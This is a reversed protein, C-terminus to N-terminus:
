TEVSQTQLIVIGTPTRGIILVDVTVSGVRFVQVQECHTTLFRILAKHQQAIAKGEDGYGQCRKEVQQILDEPTIEVVEATANRRLVNRLSSVDVTELTWSPLTWPAETESPFWLGQTLGRLQPTLNHDATM